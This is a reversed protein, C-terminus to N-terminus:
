SPKEPPSFRSVRFVRSTRRTGDGRIINREPRRDCEVIGPIKLMAAASRLNREDTRLEVADAGLSFAMSLMLSKVEQNLGTGWFRPSLCTAGVEVTDSAEADLFASTGAITDRKVILFPQRGPVLLRASLDM